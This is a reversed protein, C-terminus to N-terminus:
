KKSRIRYGSLLGGFVFLLMTSPEPMRAIWAEAYGNPNIGTGVISLGNDSIGKVNILTWGTMDLGFDSVLLDQFLRMGSEATWIFVDGDRDIGGPLGLVGIVTSGDGSIGYAYSNEDSLDGLGIMGSEETWLFAKTIHEDGIHVEGYGTVTSGDASIGKAQNTFRNGYLNNGLGIMGNEETWLFSEQGLASWSRGIVKSGDASVGKAFSAVSDGFLDGLGIMGSEETWRFAEQCHTEGIISSSHGVVTLGDDSVGYAFSSGGHLDPQGYYLTGLGIMEDDLTWRFAEEGETSHGSGVVVSGNASVGYAYSSSDWITGTGGPLDGLGVMGTEVTWRFAESYLSTSGRGVVTSGDASIGYAMSAFHGGPLDGLGQFSAAMSISASIAVIVVIITQLKM